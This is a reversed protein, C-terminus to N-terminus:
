PTKKEAATDLPLIRIIDFLVTNSLPDAYVPSPQYYRLELENRGERLPVTLANTWSTMEQWSDGEGAGRATAPTLQNFVFVGADKGDARLRRLAVRRQANVVGLGSAYHIDILYRGASPADFGFRLSRNKFRTSEVFREALKRDELVKTGSRALLPAYIIHRAAPPVWVYPRTSFGQFQSDVLPCFQVATFSRADYLAYDARFIEEELIGNLYVLYCDDGDAPVPAGFSEAVSAESVPAPLTGPSITAQRDANWTVRPPLPLLQPEELRTVFGPDSTAGALTIGIRHRGRLDAPLFPESPHGDITFTSVVKGTGTITVDFIADRYRLNGVSKEGPLNEPVYPAFAIGDATFRIGLLGRTILATFASRFSPLRHRDGTLREGEAALLSGVASAYAAENGTRACAITWATQLLMPSIEKRVTGGAPPLQPQFMRVGSYPVPTKRVIADAMAGAATGTLVAFSLALNDTAQLSIRCPPVGYNMASFFGRNPLWMEKKLARLLSDSTLSLRWRSKDAGSGDLTPDTNELIRLAGCYASNVGLTVLQGVDAPEMWPPLIGSATAVYHPVGTFLGCDPDYSVRLDTDLVSRATQRVSRLWRSDGEAVALESAGLLWEANSNIVPWGYSRTDYPIVLGNRLRSELAQRASDNQLPNLYIEYPTQASYRGSPSASAELRYLFDLLPFSSSFTMRGEAVAPATVSDLVNGGVRVQMVSDSTVRLIVGNHLDISDPWIDYPAEHAIPDVIRAIEGRCSVGLLGTACLAIFALIDVLRNM